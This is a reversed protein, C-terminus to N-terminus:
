HTSQARAQIPLDNCRAVDASGLRAVDSARAPAHSQIAVRRCGCVGDHETCCGDSSQSCPCTEAIHGDCCLIKRESATDTEWTQDAPDDTESQFTTVGGCALLAAGLVAVAWGLPGARNGQNRRM